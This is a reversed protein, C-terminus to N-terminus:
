DHTLGYAILVGAVAVLLAVLLYLGGHGSSVARAGLALELWFLFMGIIWAACGKIWPAREGAAYYLGVLGAPWLLMLLTLSHTAPEGHSFLAAVGGIGAVFLLVTAWGCGTIYRVRTTGQETRQATQRLNMATYATTVITSAICCCCCCSSCCGECSPTAASPRTDPDDFQTVLRLMVRGVLQARNRSRAAAWV